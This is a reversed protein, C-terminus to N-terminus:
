PGSAPGRQAAAALARAVELFRAVTLDADQGLRLQYCAGGARWVGYWCTQGARRQREATYRGQWTVVRFTTHQPDALWTAWAASGPRLSTGAADYLRHNVPLYSGLDLEWTHRM